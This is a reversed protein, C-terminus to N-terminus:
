GICIIYINKLPLVETITELVNVSRPFMSTLEVFFLFCVFCVSIDSGFYAAAAHSLLIICLATLRLLCATGARMAEARRQEEDRQTAASFLFLDGSCRVRSRKFSCVRVVVWWGGEM